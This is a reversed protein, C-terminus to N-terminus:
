DSILLLGGRFHCEQGSICISRPPAFVILGLKPYVQWGKLSADPSRNPGEEAAYKRVHWDIYPGEEDGGNTYGSIKERARRTDGILSLFPKKGIVFSLNGKILAMRM